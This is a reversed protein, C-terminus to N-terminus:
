DDVTKLFRCSPSSCRYITRHLGANVVQLTTLKEAHHWEPCAYLYGGSKTQTSSKYIFWGPAVEEVNYGELVAKASEMDLLKRRVDAIQNMLRLREKSAASLLSELERIRQEVMALKEIMRYDSLAVSASTSEGVPALTVQVPAVSKTNM